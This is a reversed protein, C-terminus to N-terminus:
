VFSSSLLVARKKKVDTELTVRRNTSFTKHTLWLRQFVYFIMNLPEPTLRVYELNASTVGPRTNLVLM